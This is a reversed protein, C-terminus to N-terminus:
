RGIHTGFGVGIVPGNWIAGVEYRADVDLFYRPVVYYRLDLGPAFVVRTVQTKPLHGSRVALAAFAGPRLRRSGDWGVMLRSGISLDWREDGYKSYGVRDLGVSVGPFLFVDASGGVHYPFDPDASAMAGFGLQVGGKPRGQENRHVNFAADFVSAGWLGAGLTAFLPASAGLPDLEESPDFALGSLLASTAGLYLLGKGVQHNYIQGAGPLLASALGGIAPSSGLNLELELKRSQALYEDLREEIVDTTGRSTTALPSRPNGWDDVTIAAGDNVYAGTEYLHDASWRRLLYRGPPVAIQTERGVPKNLEAVQSFDPLKLVSIRGEVSVPLHITASARRVDTLPIAGAGALRFDYSPHQTGAQSAGTGAVVRDSTYAYLEQLDVVGDDLDAAGRMGSILYHTFFGGRLEDSEQAEEEATSATLWAEGEAAGVTDLISSGVTAGKLRTITGSRCADLVGIRVTSEAQRLDSKLTEFYYHEDGIRLGSADAHGSYYFLFLDDPYEAAIAAHHALAVRLDEATPAYLVSVLGDDFGGLEVLMDAMKEADREAYLLTALTGGGQNAGVVVAHRVQRAEEWPISLPLLNEPLDQALAAGALWWM